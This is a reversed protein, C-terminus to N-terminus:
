KGKLETYQIVPDKPYPFTTNLVLLTFTGVLSGVAWAGWPTLISSLVGVSFMVVGSTVVVHMFEQLYNKKNKGDLFGVKYGFTSTNDILKRLIEGHEHSLHHIEERTESSLSELSNM